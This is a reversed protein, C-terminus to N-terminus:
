SATKLTKNKQSFNVLAVGTFILVASIVKQVTLNDTQMAVAVLTAIVPQTYIYISVLTPSGHQLGLINLMYAVFTAFVVVYMWAFWTAATIDAWPLQLLEIIGFPFVMFLSYFFIMFSITFASYKSFLPKAIVLFIAYSAANAMILLDGAVGSPSNPNLKGTIVLIYVGVAGIVIGSIKKITIREKLVFWAAILVLIPTTIMILSAHIESTLDLGKIFMLQNCAVGFLACAILKLQDQRAVKERKFFFFIFTFLLLGITVRSVVLAFPPIQQLAIKAFTYNLGYFINASLIYLHAKTNNTM